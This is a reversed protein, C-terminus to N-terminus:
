MIDRKPRRRQMILYVLFRLEELAASSFAILRWKKCLDKNKVEEKRGWSKKRVTLKAM